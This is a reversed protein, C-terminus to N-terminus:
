DKFLLFTAGENIIYHIARFPHPSILGPIHHITPQLLCYVVYRLLM